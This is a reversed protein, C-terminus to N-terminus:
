VFGVDESEIAKAEALRIANEQGEHELFNQIDDVHIYLGTDEVRTPPNICVICEDIRKRANAQIGFAVGRFNPKKM